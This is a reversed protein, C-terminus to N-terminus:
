GEGVFPNSLRERGITTSPGHGSYVITDDPLAFLKTKISTILTEYDGGPLDTRGISGNFLVDGGILSKIKPIYFCISGPSHGPALIIQIDCDGFMIKGENLFGEPEPSAEVPVGYIQGVQPANILIELEDPHLYPKLMYVRNVMANGMVHDLHAHTLWLKKLEIKEKEIFHIFSQQESSSYFGPDILIANNQEDVLLYTNEQFPNYTFSLIRMTQFLFIRGM